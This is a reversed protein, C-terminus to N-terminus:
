VPYVINKFQIPATADGRLQREEYLNTCVYYSLVSIYSAGRRKANLIELM